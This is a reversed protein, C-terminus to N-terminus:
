VDVQVCVGDHQMHMNNSCHCVHHDGFGGRACGIWTLGVWCAKLIYVVHQQTLQDTSGAGLLSGGTM